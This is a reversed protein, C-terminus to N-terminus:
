PQDVHTSEKDTQRRPKDALQESEVANMAVVLKRVTKFDPTSRGREIRNLTEPRIGARRALDAQSLGTARRRRALKEALSARDLDFGPAFGDEDAAPDRPRIGAKECFRQFVVERLIVYRIGDLEVGRYDIAQRGRGAM